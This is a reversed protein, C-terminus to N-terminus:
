DVPLERLDLLELLRLSQLWASILWAASSSIAAKSFNMESYKSLESLLLVILFCGLVPPTTLPGAFCLIEALLMRLSTNSNDIHLTRVLHGHRSCGATTLSLLRDQGASRSLSVTGHGHSLMMSYVPYCPKIDVSTSSWLYHSELQQLSM